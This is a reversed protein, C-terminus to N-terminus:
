PKLGFMHCLAIAQSESFGAKIHALYNGYRMEAIIKCENILDPCLRELVATHEASSNPLNHVNDPKDSV